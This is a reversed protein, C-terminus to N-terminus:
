NLKISGFLRVNAGPLLVEERRQFSAHNLVVDDALNEGKLGITIEQGLDGLGTMRATYSLEASVLTYGPTAIEEFEAAFRNQDFAHLVGVRAFWNLTAITSAAASAIPHFARFTAAAM